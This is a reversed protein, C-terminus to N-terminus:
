LGVPNKRKDTVIIRAKSRHMEASNFMNRVDHDSTIGVLIKETDVIKEQELIQANTEIGIHSHEQIATQLNGFSDDTTTCRYYTKDDQKKVLFEKESLNMSEGKMYKLATDATPREDKHKMLCYILNALMDDKHSLHKPGRNGNKLENIEGPWQSKKPLYCSLFYLVIGASYLDVKYDYDGTALEPAMFQEHGAKLSLAPMQKAETLALSSEIISAIERAHGFDAIKVVIDENKQPKPYAILINGPHIDRHVWGIQHIARLGNLIQPFVQAWLPKRNENPRIIQPGVINYIFDTLNVWCLEMQIFVYSNSDIPKSWSQHYRVVNHRWLDDKYDTLLELERRQYKANEDNNDPSRLIKIAFKEMPHLDRHVKLVLLASSGKGITEEINLDRSKLVLKVNEFLRERDEDM